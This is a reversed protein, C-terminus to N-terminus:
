RTSLLRLAVPSAQTEDPLEASKRIGLTITDESLLSGASDENRPSCFASSQFVLVM